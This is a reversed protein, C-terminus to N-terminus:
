AAWPISSWALPFGYLYGAAIMLAHGPITADAGSPSLRLYLLPGVLRASLIPTVAERDRFFHLLDLLQQRSAWLLVPCAPGGPRIAAV